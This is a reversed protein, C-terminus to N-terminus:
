GRRYEQRQFGPRLLPPHPLLSERRTRRLDALPLPRRPIPRPRTSCCRAKTRTPLRTETQIFISLPVSVSHNNVGLGVDEVTPIKERRGLHRLEGTKAGAIRTRLQVIPVAVPVDERDLMPSLFVERQISQMRIVMARALLHRLDETDEAVCLVAPSQSEPKRRQVAEEVILAWSVYQWDVRIAHDRRGPVLHSSHLM